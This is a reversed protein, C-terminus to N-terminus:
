EKSKNRALNRKEFEEFFEAKMRRWEDNTVKDQAPIWEFERDACREIVRIPIVFQSFLHNLCFECLSFTHIDSDCLAGWGNGPTSDYGGEVSCDILGHFYNDYDSKVFRCTLGCMNCLKEKIEKSM